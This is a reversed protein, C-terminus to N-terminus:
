DRSLTEIVTQTTPVPLTPATLVLSPDAISGSRRSQMYQNIEKALYNEQSKYSMVLQLRVKNSKNDNLGLDMQPVENSRRSSFHLRM